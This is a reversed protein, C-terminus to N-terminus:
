VVPGHLAPPRHPDGPQPTLPFGRTVITGRATRLPYLVPKELTDPYLFSTFLQGGVFVDVKSEGVAKIVKM